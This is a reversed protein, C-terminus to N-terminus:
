RLEAGLERKFSATLKEMIKEIEKDQLTKTEDLLTFSVAYSKKGEPLNKGEYVDFLSVRKLLKKETRTAIAKIQAFTVDKNILLALDRKVEPYKPLETYLIKNQKASKDFLIPIVIEAYFVPVDIDFQKTIKNSVMGLKVLTKTKDVMLSLGESFIDDALYEESINSWNLGLRNIINEVTTKLDFFTVNQAPTNWNAEAKLGTMLLSLHQEEKYNKLETKDGGAVFSHCNGFEFLKLDANRRNRNHQAVELASFLLTQRLANLDQSLPNALEVTQEKPFSTLGEFYASKTLTNCMIEQFGMANLQAAVSNVLKNKDPKAAYVLSARVEGPIEINNYGYIRLIDEIVDAERTVDVRYPPVSLTWDNGNKATITIELNALIAKITEVPIVKGILRNCRDVNFEVTFNDVPTPYLDVIDSSITGGTVEKILMAAYKLAYITNNPDTGREYRFSADTNLQQRRATKRVSVPNFYASEIFIRKTDNTVGSDLGGFVGAICMPEEANCIMLDNEHLQREKGDLTVFKTGAPCNKVIIEGGKIKDADFAHLPQGLAFLIYNTVDVVNNIPTLGIIQLSKKLWDPSEKVEANNICVGSYRPCSDVNEVSVKISLTNDDVKFDEVSPKTLSINSDKLSLAAALDRAVGYHSAADIRNPTIDVEFVTDSEVNYYDKALTGVEVNDPLVIIGDHDKGIGIEDAACLMGNSPVGRLKSPKITFSDDGDYLITGITAVVVKQGAAVNPAGCVIGLPEGQGVNVTTVHLHDSNPHEECTLVEGIVLGELGGKISQVEEISGVELGISTLTESVKEAPLDLNIYRKLWNYSVNM